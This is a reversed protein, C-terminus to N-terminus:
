EDCVIAPRHVNGHRSFNRRYGYKARGRGLEAEKRVRLIGDNHALTEWATRTSRVAAPTAGKTVSMANLLNLRVCNEFSRLFQQAIDFPHM